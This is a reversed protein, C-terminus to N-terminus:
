SQNIIKKIAGLDTRIQSAIDNSHLKIQLLEQKLQKNEKLLNENEVGIEALSKQLANIENNFNTIIERNDSEHAVQKIQNIKNVMAAELEFLTKTLDENALKLKNM